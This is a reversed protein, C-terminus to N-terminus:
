EYRLAQVPKIQSAQWAPFTGSVAGALFAFLLCGAILYPPFVVQLLTTNLQNVVVYEVSKSIAFGLIVGGIGGVLGLLGSEILFIKLIDSNRAGVAKMVGIERYRELVATYMTNAIGIAGVVLSIAAVGILFAMIINLIDGFTRMYEEPTIVSFDQTKETQDRFDRLKKEVKKAVETLNTGPQIQAVMTDARDGSDFIEKFDDISIYVQRDDSPNGVRGVIGRVKLPAGNIEVTDGVKIPKGMLDSNGYDWGMMVVGRDGKSLFKGKDISLLASEYIIKYGDPEDLPMGIVFYYRAKNNFKIEGNGLNMYTVYKVGSVRSIADVDDITMEIPNGEGPLGAALMPYVFFKDTGLLRFQEEVAAQLGLSLSVITFLIAISVFIGIMTLWSRLQRRKLNKLALYFYEKMM